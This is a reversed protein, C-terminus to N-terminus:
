WEAPFSRRRRGPPDPPLRSWTRRNTVRLAGRGVNDAYVALTEGLGCAAPALVGELGRGAIETGFAQCPGHPGHLDGAALGLEVATEPSRLDVVRDLEVRVTLVRRPGIMEPPMGPFPDVLTRWAEGIVALEPRALYIVRVGPPGFRGGGTSGALPSRRPSTHRLFRGALPSTM